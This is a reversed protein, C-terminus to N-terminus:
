KGGTPVSADSPKANIGKGTEITVKGGDLTVKSDTAESWCVGMEGSGYGGAPVPVGGVVAGGAGGRGALSFCGASKSHIAEKIIDARQQDNLPMLLTCGPLVALALVMYLSLIAKLLWRRISLRYLYALGLVALILGYAIYVGM